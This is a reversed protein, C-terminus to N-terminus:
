DSSEDDETMDGWLVVHSEKVSKVVVILAVVALVWWATTSQGAWEVVEEFM